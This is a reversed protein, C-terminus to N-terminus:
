RGRKSGRPLLGKKGLEILLCIPRVKPVSEMESGSKPILVLVTTKWIASFVGEQLCRSYVSALMEVAESPLVM